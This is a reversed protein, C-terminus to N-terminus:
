QLNLPMKFRFTAGKGVESQVSVDGGLARALILTGALGLGHGTRATSRESEAQVYRRFILAHDEPKIGPGDDTIEVVIMEGERHLDVALKEKRLRLANRVLNGVIQSFIAEDQNIEISDVGAAVRFFIGVQELLHLVEAKTMTESIQEVWEGEMAEISALLVAYVTKAPYFPRRIIQGAESRGIELLNNVMNRGRLAGRLVRRLTKAQRPSLPGLKEEKELLSKVGAEIIALPEKLEHVLFQIQLERFFHEENGDDHGSDTPM